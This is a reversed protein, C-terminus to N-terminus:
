SIRRSRSESARAVGRLIVPLPDDTPYGAAQAGGVGDDQPKQEGVGDDEWGVSNDAVIGRPGRSHASHSVTTDRPTAPDSLHKIPVKRYM